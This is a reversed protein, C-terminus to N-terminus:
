AHTQLVNGMVAVMQAAATHANLARPHWVDAVEVESALFGHLMTWPDAASSEEYPFAQVSLVCKSSPDWTYATKSAARISVAFWQRCLVGCAEAALAASKRLSEAVDVAANAVHAVDCPLDGSRVVLAELVFPLDHGFAWHQCCSLDWRTSDMRGLSRTVGRAWEDLPVGDSTRVRVFAAGKEATSRDGLITVRPDTPTPTILRELDVLRDHLMLAFKESVTGVPDTPGATPGVPNVVTAGVTPGVPDTTGVPNGVPDTAINSLAAVTEDVTATTDDYAM